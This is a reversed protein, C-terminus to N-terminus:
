ELEVLKPSECRTVPEPPLTGSIREFLLKVMAEGIAWNRKDITIMPRWPCFQNEPMELAYNDYGALWVDRNPVLGWRDLASAVCPVASDTHLLLADPRNPDRALEMLFGITQRVRREFVEATIDEDPWEPILLTPRPSLGAEAMAKEYGSRRAPYWYHQAPNGSWVMAIRRRGNALMWEVAMRAGAEHDSTIRDYRALSAEGGYVVVPLGAAKFSQTLADIQRRLMVAEPVLVGLPRAQILRQMKVPDLRIPHVALIDKGELRIGHMAGQVMQEVWGPQAHQANPNPTPTIVVVASALAANTGDAVENRSGAWRYQCRRGWQIRKVLQEEALIALASRVVSRGVGLRAALKRESPLLANEALGQEEFWGRLKMAALYREPLPINQLQNLESQNM